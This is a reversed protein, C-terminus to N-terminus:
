FEILNIEKIEKKNKSHQKMRKEPYALLRNNEKDDVDSIVDSELMIQLDNPIIKSKTVVVEM